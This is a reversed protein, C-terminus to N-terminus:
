SALVAQVREILVEPTIPKTLYEVAGIDLGTKESIADVRATLLMVPIEALNEDAKLSRLVDFGNIDAMMIDLLILDVPEQDLYDLAEQGSLSKHTQFGERELAIELLNCLLPDDDVILIRQAM